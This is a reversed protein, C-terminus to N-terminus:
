SSFKKKLEALYGAGSEPTPCFAVLVDHLEARRFVSDAIRSGAYYDGSGFLILVKQRPKREAGIFRDEIRKAALQYTDLRFISSDVATLTNKPHIALRWEVILENSVFDVSMEDIGPVPADYEGAVDLRALEDRLANGMTRAIASRAAAGSGDFEPPLGLYPPAEERVGVSAAQLENRKRYWAPVSLGLNITGKPPLAALPSHEGFIALLKDHLEPRPMSRGAEWHGVNQQSTGAAKALDFQSLGKAKREARLAAGYTTTSPEEFVEARLSAGQEITEWPSPLDEAKPEPGLLGGSMQEKTM